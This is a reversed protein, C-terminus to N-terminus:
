KRRKILVVIIVITVLLIGCIVLTNNNKRVDKINSSHSQAEELTVGTEIDYNNEEEEYTMEENDLTEENNDYTPEQRTVNYKSDIKEEDIIVKIVSEDDAKNDEDEPNIIINFGEFSKSGEKVSAYNEKFYDVVDNSRFDLELLTIISNYARESLEGKEYITIDFTGYREIKYRIEGKSATYSGYESTELLNLEFDQFDKKELYVNSFDVLPVKKDIDMKIEYTGGDVEKLEFGENEVTYNVISEDNLTLFMEGDEYGHIQGISDALATTMLLGM